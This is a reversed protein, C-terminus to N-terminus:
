VAQGPPVGILAVPADDTLDELESAALAVAQEVTEVGSLDIVHREYM